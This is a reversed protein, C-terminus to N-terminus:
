MGENINSLDNNGNRTKDVLFIKNNNLDKLLVTEQNFEIAIEEAFYILAETSIGNIEVSLSKEDFVKGNDSIYRGSFFNGISFAGIYEDIPNEINYKIITKNVKNKQM